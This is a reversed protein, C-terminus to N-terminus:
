KSAPTSAADPNVRALLTEGGFRKLVDGEFHVTFVKRDKLVGARADSYVYDWRDAHFPDTLLPTGLVFRVQARTMGVKLKEIQDATIGNGQPIDLKYPSVFQPFSCAGTLVAVILLAARLVPKMKPSDEGDACTRPM